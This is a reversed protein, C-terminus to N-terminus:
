RLTRILTVAGIDGGIAIVGNPGYFVRGRLHSPIWLLRVGHYHLFGSEDIPPYIVQGRGNM